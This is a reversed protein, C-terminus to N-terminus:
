RSCAVRAPHTGPNGPAASIDPHCIIKSPRGPPSRCAASRRSQTSSLPNSGRVGEIRVCDAGGASSRQHDFALESAGRSGPQSCNPFPWGSSSRGSEEWNILSSCRTRVDIAGPRSRNQWRRSGPRDLAPVEARQLLGGFRCFQGLGHRPEGSTGAARQGGTVGQARKSTRDGPRQGLGPEREVVAGPVVRPVPEASHAQQGDSSAMGRRALRSHNHGM